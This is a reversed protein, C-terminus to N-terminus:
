RRPRAPDEHPLSKMFWRPLIAAAIARAPVREEHPGAGSARAERGSAVAGRGVGGAGGAGAGGAFASGTRKLVGAASATREERWTKGFSLGQFSSIESRGTCGSESRITSVMPLFRRKRHFGSMLKMRM